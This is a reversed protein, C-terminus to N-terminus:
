VQALRATEPALLAGGGGGGGTVQPEADEHQPM